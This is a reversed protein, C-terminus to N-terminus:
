STLNFELNNILNIIYSRFGEAIMQDENKEECWLCEVCVEDM